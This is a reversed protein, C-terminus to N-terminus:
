ESEPFRTRAVFDARDDILTVRYGTNRALRALAAGVHGAGCVVVHAEPEIREYLVRAGRWLALAPAFEETKFTQAEARSALFTQAQATLADDLAADNTTGTSTGTQEILLKAGVARPADVVTALAAVAGAEHVRAVAAIIRQAQQAQEGADNM